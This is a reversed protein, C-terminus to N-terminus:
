IRQGDIAHESKVRAVGLWGDVKAYFEEVDDRRDDGLLDTGVLYGQRRLHLALLAYSPRLDAVDAPAVVLSQGPLASTLTDREYIADLSLIGWTGDQRILRYNLRTFSILHVPIGDFEIQMEVSAAVEAHARDGRLRVAPPQVRHVALDGRGSMEQSRTVFDDGSGDFWSLRVIADSRFASRMQDWWGRDRGQRERLILQTIDTTDSM